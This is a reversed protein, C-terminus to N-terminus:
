LKICTITAGNENVEDFYIAWGLKIRTNLKEKLPFQNKYTSMTFYDGTGFLDDNTLSFEDRDDKYVGGDKTNFEYGKRIVTLQRYASSGALDVARDGGSNSTAHVVNGKSPLGTTAGTNTSYLRSDVHWLRIGYSDPGANRNKLAHDTDFTNLGNPSYFEIMLYNHFPTGFTNANSSLAIVEGGEEMPKLHIKVTEQPHYAKAWGLAYRSYPDHGGVNEDQMSFSLAPSSVGSYDYYDNLGFIHGMEHIFTHADINCHRTDGSAYSSGSRSIAADKSYMFDYSSWFFANVTPNFTSSASLTWSTYAWLNSADNNGLAAQDPAGYVMMVGDLYGDKDTDFSSLTDVDLYSKYWDIAKKLLSETRYDNDVYYHESSYGCEYWPTVVGELHVTGFSDADYYSSVSHWGTDEENGFFATEIDDKVNDPYLIYDSSDTFWIPIVLLKPNGTSPCVSLGYYSNKAFDQYTISSKKGSFESVELDDYTHDYEDYILNDIPKPNEEEQPKDEEQSPKSPIFTSGSSSTNQFGCGAVSLANILIFAFLLGKNKKM